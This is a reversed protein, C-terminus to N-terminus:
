GQAEYKYGLRYLEVSAGILYLAHISRLYVRFALPSQPEIQERRIRNLAATSCARVLEEMNQYDNFLRGSSPKDKPNMRLVTERIYEDMCDFGRKDRIYAYLNDLNGFISWDEDWYHAVAMGVYMMWGLAVTPYKAIERVGDVMYEGAISEWKDDLDPSPLLRGGLLRQQTCIGMLERTLGLEYKDLFEKEEEM